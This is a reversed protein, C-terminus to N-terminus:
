QEAEKELPYVVSTAYYKEDFIERVLENAEEVTVEAMINGIDFWDNGKILSM